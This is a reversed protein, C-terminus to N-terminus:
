TSEPHGTVWPLRQAAVRPQILTGRCPVDAAPTTRASPIDTQSQVNGGALQRQATQWRAAAGCLRSDPATGPKGMRDSAAGPACARAGARRSSGWGAAFCKGQVVTSTNRNQSCKLGLFQVSLNELTDWTRCRM